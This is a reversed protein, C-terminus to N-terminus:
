INICFYKRFLSKYLREIISSMFYRLNFNNYVCNKLGATIDLQNFKSFIM